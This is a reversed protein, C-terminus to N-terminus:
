ARQNMKPLFSTQVFTMPHVRVLATDVQKIRKMRWTEAVAVSLKVWLTFTAGVRDVGVMWEGVDVGGRRIGVPLEEKFSQGATGALAKVKM